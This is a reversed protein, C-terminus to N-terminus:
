TANASRIASTNALQKLFANRGEERGQALVAERQDDTIAETKKKAKHRVEQKLTRYRELESLIREFELDSVCGDTLAKPVYHGSYKRAKDSSIILDGEHKKQKVNIASLSKRTVTTAISLLLSAGTLAIGVPIVVGSAFAAISTSGTIVTTIILGTDAIFISNGIRRIKKALKEREEMEHLFFAEIESVKRFDINKHQIM